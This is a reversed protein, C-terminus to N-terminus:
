LNSRNFLLGKVNQRLEKFACIIIIEETLAIGTMLATIDFLITNYKFFFCYIFFLAQFFAAAKTCYTHLGSVIKNHKFWLIFNKILFIFTLLLIILLNQTFIESHVHFIAILSVIFLLDDALSDLKAGLTSTAKLRRALFGDLADTIFASILIWKFYPHQHFLLLLLIPSAVIRYITIINVIGKKIGSKLVLNYITEKEKRNYAIFYRFTYKLSFFACVIASIFFAIRFFGSVFPFVSDSIITFFIISGFAMLIADRIKNM